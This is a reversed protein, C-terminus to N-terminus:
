PATCFVPRHTSPPRRRLFGTCRAPAERVTRDDHRYCDRARVLDRRSPALLKEQAGAPGLDLGEQEVHASREVGVHVAATVDRHPEVPDLVLEEGLVPLVYLA